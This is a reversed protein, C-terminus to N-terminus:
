VTLKDFSSVIDIPQVDKKPIPKSIQQTLTKNKTKNKKNKFKKNNIQYITKFIYKPKNQKSAKESKPKTM